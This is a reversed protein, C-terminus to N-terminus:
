DRWKKPKQLAKLRAEDARKLNTARRWSASLNSVSQSFDVHIRNDDILVGQMKFYAGECANKDEFEIFAYQLSKGTSKDRIIECSLIKGFRSFILQLDEDETIPNLKAVFLVNEPPKVEAFPLDGIIELTLAQARAERERRMKEKAEEDEDSSPIEIDPLGAAEVLEKEQIDSLLINSRSKATNTNSPYRYSHEKGSPPSVSRRHEEPYNRRSHSRSHLDSRNSYDKSSSSQRLANDKLMKDKERHENGSKHSSSKHDRSRSSHSNQYDRDRYYRSSRHQYRRDDDRNRSSSSHSHRERDRYDRDRDKDRDKVIERDRARDRDRYRDHDSDRDRNDYRSFSPSSLTRHEKRYASSKDRQQKEVDNDM